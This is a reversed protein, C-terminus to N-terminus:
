TDHTTLGIRGEIRGLSKTIERLETVVPNESQQESPGILELIPDQKQEMRALQEQVENLKQIGESM